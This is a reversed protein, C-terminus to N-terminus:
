HRIEHAPIDWMIAQVTDTVWLDAPGTGWIGMLAVPANYLTRSEGGEPRYIVLGEDTVM